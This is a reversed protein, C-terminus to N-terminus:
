GRSPNEEATWLETRGKKWHYPIQEIIFANALTPNTFGLSELFGFHHQNVEVPRPEWHERVGEVILVKGAGKDSFTFPLPGAFRRAEKWNIFPSGAPLTAADTSVPVTIDLNIAAKQSHILWKNGNIRCDIDVHHYRYHTLANGFRTMLRSDTESRLIYLGRLKKGTATKYRVFIRYGALFFQRGLFKPFGHPRLQQTQVLAVALFGANEHTDLELFRPLLPLLQEKPVAYSCVISYDFFADVALPHDQLFSLMDAPAAPNSLFPTAM